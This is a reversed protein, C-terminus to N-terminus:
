GVQFWRVARAFRRSHARRSAAMSTKAPCTRQEIERCLTETALMSDVAHLMNQLWGKIGHDSPLSLAWSQRAFVPDDARERLPPIQGHDGRADPLRPARGGPSV